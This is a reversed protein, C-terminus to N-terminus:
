ICVKIGKLAGIRALAIVLMVTFALSVVGVVVRKPTIWEENVNSGNSFSYRTRNAYSDASMIDISM